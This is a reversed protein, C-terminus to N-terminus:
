FSMPFICKLISLFPHKNFRIIQLISLYYFIKFFYKLHFMKKYKHPIFTYPLTLRGRSQQVLEINIILLKNIIVQM